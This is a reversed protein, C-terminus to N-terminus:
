ALGVIAAERYIWQNNSKKRETNRSVKTTAGTRDRDANGHVPTIVLLMPVTVTPMMAIVKCLRNNTTQMCISHQVQRSM